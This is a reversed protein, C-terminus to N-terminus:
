ILINNILYKNNLLYKIVKNTYKNFLLKLEKRRM